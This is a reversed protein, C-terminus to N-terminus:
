INGFPITRFYKLERLSSTEMKPWCALLWTKLFYKKAPNEHRFTFLRRFINKSFLYLRRLFLYLRRLLLLLYLRRFLFLLLYFRRKQPLDKLIDLIVSRGTKRALARTPTYYDPRDYSRGKQRHNTYPTTQRTQDTTQPRTQSHADLVFNFTMGFFLM